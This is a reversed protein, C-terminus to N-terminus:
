TEVLDTLLDHVKAPNPIGLFDFERQEAATQIYLDGYNFFIGFLGGVQYSIDQIQYLPAESLRYFLFGYYDLDVVRHTTILHVNFYWYLFSLLGYGLSFLYWCFVLLTKTRVPLSTLDLFTGGSIRPLVLPLILLVLLLLIWPLNTIPHARLLLLIEEDHEQDAFRVDAPKEVYSALSSKQEKRGEVVLVIM